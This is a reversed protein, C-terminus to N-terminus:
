ATEGRAREIAEVRREVIATELSSSISLRAQLRRALAPTPQKRRARIARAMSRTWALRVPDDMDRGALMLALGDIILSDLAHGLPEGNERAEARRRAQDERDRQRRREQPDITETM